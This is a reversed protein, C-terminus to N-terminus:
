SKASPAGNTLDSRVQYQGHRRPVPEVWTTVNHGKMAWYAVIKAALREAGEKDLGVLEDNPNLM